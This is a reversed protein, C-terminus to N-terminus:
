SWMPHGSPREPRAALRVPLRPVILQRFVVSCFLSVTSKNVGEMGALTTHQSNALRVSELKRVPVAPPRNSEIRLKSELVSRLPDVDPNSVM